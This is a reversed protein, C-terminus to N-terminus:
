KNKQPKPKTLPFFNTKTCKQTKNKQGTILSIYSYFFFPDLFHAVCTGCTLSWFGWLRKHNCPTCNLVTSCGCCKIYKHCKNCQMRRNELLSPDRGKPEEQPKERKEQQLKNKHLKGRIQILLHLVTPTTTHEVSERFFGRKKAIESWSSQSNSLNRKPINTKIYTFVHTSGETFTSM